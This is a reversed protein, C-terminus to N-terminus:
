RLWSPQALGVDTAPSAASTTALDLRVSKGFESHLMPPDFLMLFSQGKDSCLEQMILAVSGFISMAWCNEQDAEAFTQNGSIEGAAKPSSNLPQKSRRRERAAMDVDHRQAASQVCNFMSSM